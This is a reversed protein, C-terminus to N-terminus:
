SRPVRSSSLEQVGEVVEAEPCGPRSPEYVGEFVKAGGFSCLSRGERGVATWLCSCLAEYFVLDEADM